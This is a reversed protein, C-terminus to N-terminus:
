HAAPSAALCLCQACAAVHNHFYLGGEVFQKRLNPM